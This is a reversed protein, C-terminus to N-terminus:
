LGLWQEALLGALTPIVLNDLGYGLAAEVATLALAVAAAGAIAGHGATLAFPIGLGFGVVLFALSGPVSKRGGAVRWTLRPLRRGVIGAVADPGALMLAGYSFAAPHPWLVVAALLLGVPFLVAGLTPRAVAHVSPLTGRQRTVGLVLTFALALIVVDALGLYLPFLATTGAGALHVLARTTEPRVGRRSALESAAFLACLGAATALLPLIRM